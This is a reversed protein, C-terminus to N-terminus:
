LPSPADAELRKQLDQFEFRNRLSNIQTDGPMVRLLWQRARPVKSYIYELHEMATEAKGMVAYACAVNYRAAFNDPELQVAHQAWEEARAYDEVYVAAAAGFALVDARGPGQSLISEIRILGRRAAAKSEAHRGQALYVDALLPYSAFDDSRLTAARQFASAATDLDGLDRAVLGYFYHVGFLEPDLEIARTFSVSAENSHGTAYLAVGRSLHAEALNPALQLAKDSNALMDEDSIDLDGALWIFADCCAIGAYVKAYDPDIEAAKSFLERATRMTSPSGWSEVFKARGQLYYEYAESNSTSRGAITELEEPLLKVKLAAVISKAIEDQLAFIDVLDRDYREAWIHGGSAGDLLQATIRVRNGAKRVSGELIFAVNLQRAAGIIDVPKGKFMFVSNRAVVFLASVRSLDTIIDETIGDSFYEQEPDGSMNTFPLVALSPKAPQVLSRPFQDARAAPASLRYVRVPEAINKLLKEGLDEFRFDVKGRVQGFVVQSVLVEGPEAMSELRAAINIGDGYLDSGEVIVDGINVGVRLVIRQAEALEKNADKMAEQLEGACAVANVASAFEILAGDGMFKVVRGHHRSVLPQLIDARRVKLAALTGAEDLQMLRSYGVVDAALIAVLRRKM